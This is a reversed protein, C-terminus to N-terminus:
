SYRENLWSQADRVIHRKVKVARATSLATAACVDATVGDGAGACDDPKACSTFLAASDSILNMVEM